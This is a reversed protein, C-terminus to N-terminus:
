SSGGGLATILNNLQDRVVRARERLVVIAADREPGEVYDLLGASEGLDGAFGVLAVVADDVAKGEASREHQHQVSTRKM